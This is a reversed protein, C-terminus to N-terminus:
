KKEFTKKDKVFEIDINQIEDKIGCKEFWKLNLFETVLQQVGEMDLKQQDKM